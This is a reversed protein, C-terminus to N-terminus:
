RLPEPFAQVDAVSSAGTALMVLRDVGLANGGAPPLGEELAAILQRDLPYTRRKDKRREAREVRHRREQEAPDTLEGYGNCLEVGGLYLEFREAVSPDKPSLRALAAQPAPYDCLFVPRAHAALAPEVRDVLLQFFKAEDRACLEVADKVGAYRRFAQRVSLRPYPPRVDVKRGNPLAVRSSGTVARVVRYVVEETDRMVDDRDAFARYWELMMFEPEHLPGLEEARSVHVLEFVRPMGGVLLRKLHHEPSTILFGGEARLADVNRDVGPATVRIPTDVELFRQEAFYDRIVSLARARQLLRSGVGEAAFRSFESPARPPSGPYHQVVRGRWAGSQLRGEVVVLDGAAISSLRPKVTLRLTALADALVLTEGEHLAVRGGILLTKGRPPRASRVVDSPALTVASRGRRTTM